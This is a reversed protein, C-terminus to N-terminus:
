LSLLIIGPITDNQSAPELNWDYLGTSSSNPRSPTPRAAQSGQGQRGTRPEISQERAGDQGHELGWATASGAGPMQGVVLFDDNM